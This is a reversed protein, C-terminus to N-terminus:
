VILRKGDRTGEPTPHVSKWRELHKYVADRVTEWPRQEQTKNGIWAGLSHIAEGDKIIHVDDRTTRDNPNLKRFRIVRKRHNKTGIPIIETKEKNFKAGSV